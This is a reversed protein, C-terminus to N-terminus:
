SGKKRCVVVLFSLNLFHIVFFINPVAFGDSTIIKPVFPYAQFKKTDM